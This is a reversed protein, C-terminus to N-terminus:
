VSFSAVALSLIWQIEAVDPHCVTKNLEPSSRARFPLESIGSSWGVHIWKYWHTTCYCPLLTFNQRLSFSQVFGPNHLISDLMVVQTFIIRLFTDKKRDHSQGTSELALEKSELVLFFNRMETMLSSFAISRQLGSAPWHTFFSLKSKREQSVTRRTWCNRGYTVIQAHSSEEWPHHEAQRLHHWTKQEKCFAVPLVASTTHWIATEVLYVFVGPRVMWM